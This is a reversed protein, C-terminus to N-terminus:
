SMMRKRASLLETLQQQKHRRNEPDPERDPHLHQAARRFLTKVWTSDMVQNRPDWDGFSEYHEQQNGRADRIWDDPDPPIDDFGFLDDQYNEEEFGKNYEERSENSFSEHIHERLQEKTMGLAQAISEEYKNQLQQGSEPALPTIRHIILDELWDRIEHRQWEFLSKHGAFTTLKTALTILTDLQKLNAEQTHHRYRHTL